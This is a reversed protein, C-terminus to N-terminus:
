RRFRLGRSLLATATTISSPSSSSRETTARTSRWFRREVSIGLFDAVEQVTHPGERAVDFACDRTPTLHTAAIAPPYRCDRQQCAGPPGRHSCFALPYRGNAAARDGDVAGPPALVLWRVVFAAAPPGCRAALAGDAM